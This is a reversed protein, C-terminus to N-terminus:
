ERGGRYRVVLALSDDTGTAYKSLIDAAIQSAPASLDPREAFGTGLGDTGVLLLDGTRIAQRSPQLRPPLVDGVIGSRLMTAGVTRPAAPAARVVFANVNGVGLWDVREDDVHVSVLTMAVGRGHGLTQHCLRFLVDLSEAPNESVAAAARHAAAAASAGHGLGDIVGFLVRNGSDVLLWQDGCEVEGPHARGAVAWELGAVYGNDRM